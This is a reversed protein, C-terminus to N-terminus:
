NNFDIRVISNKTQPDCANTSSEYIYSTGAAAEMTKKLNPQRILQIATSMLDVVLLGGNGSLSIGEVVTPDIFKLNWGSTNELIYQKFSTTTGSIETDLTAAFTGFPILMKEGNGASLSNRLMRKVLDVAGQGTTPKNEGSMILYNDTSVSQMLGKNIGDGNIFRNDYERKLADLVKNNFSEIGEAQYDSKQIETLFFEKVFSTSTEIATTKSIETDAKKIKGLNLDNLSITKTTTSGEVATNIVANGLFAEYLATYGSVYQDNLRKIELDNTFISTAM